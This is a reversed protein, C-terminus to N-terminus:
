FDTFFFFRLPLSRQSDKEGMLFLIGWNLWIRYSFVQSLLLLQSTCSVDTDAFLILNILSLFWVHATHSNHATPWMTCYYFCLFQAFNKYFILWQCQENVASATKTVHQQTFYRVFLLRLHPLKNQRVTQFAVTWWPLSICCSAADVALFCLSLFAPAWSM